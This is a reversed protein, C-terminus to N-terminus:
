IKLQGWTMNKPIPGSFHSDWEEQSHIPNYNCGGSHGTTASLEEVIVVANKYGTNRENVPKNWPCWAIPYGRLKSRERAEALAQDKMYVEVRTWLNATGDNMTVVFRGSRCM